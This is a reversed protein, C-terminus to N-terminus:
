SVRPVCRCVALSAHFCLSFLRSAAHMTLAAPLGAAACAASVQLTDGADFRRTLRAGDPMRFSLTYFGAQDAAPEAKLQGRKSQEAALRAEEAERAERAANERRQEEEFEAVAAEAKVREKAEM